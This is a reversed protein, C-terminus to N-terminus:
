SSNYYNLLENVLEKLIVNKGQIKAIKINNGLNNM